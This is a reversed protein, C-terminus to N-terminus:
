VQTITINCIPIPCILPISYAGMDVGGEGTGICPSNPLLHYDKNIFDVFLPDSQINTIDLTQGILSSNYFDNYKIISSNVPSVLKVSAGYMINNKMIFNDTYLFDMNGAPNIFINNIFSIGVNNVYGQDGNGLGLASIGNANFINNEFNTNVLGSAVTGAEELYNDKILANRTGPYLNIGYTKSGSEHNELGVKIIHNGIIQNGITYYDFRIGRDKANIITNYSIINNNSDDLNNHNAGYFSICRNTNNFVNNNITNGNSWQAIIGGSTSDHFNNNKITSNKMFIPNICGIEVQWVGPPNGNIQYFENNDITIDTLTNYESNIFIGQYSLDHLINKQILINNCTGLISIGTNYNTITLGVVSIYSKNNITISTGTKSIGDIIPSTGPYASLTILSSSTGSTPFSISENWTGDLMYVIDGAIALSLGKSITKFPLITSLGNNNNNGFPSIYYTTM